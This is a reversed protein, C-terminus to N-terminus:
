GHGEVEEIKQRLRAMVRSKYHYVTGVTTKLAEAVEKAPQGLAGAQWFAQWTLRPFSAACKSPPGPSCAAGTSPM